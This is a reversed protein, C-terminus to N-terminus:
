KFTFTGAGALYGKNYVEVTYKGSIFAPNVPAWVACSTVEENAYDLESLTTFRIEEGNGRNTFFGSGMDEVALTEGKPNIIRVIFQETGPKVVENSLATFCVKIQDVRKAKDQDKVKGSNRVQQGMGKVERMKIISAISVKGALEEKETVLKAQLNQLETNETSKSQLDTSLREREGTLQENESALMENESKLQEIQAFYQKVQANLNNIEIRAKELKDRSGIMESIRRKQQELEAKQQDILANLEENSTKQAELDALAANYQTELEQRLKNSEELESVTQQLERGKTISNYSLYGIVALLIIGITVVIPTTNQNQPKNSSYTTM